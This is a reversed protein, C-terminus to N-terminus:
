ISNSLGTGWRGTISRRRRGLSLRLVTVHSRRVKEALNAVYRRLSAVSVALVREDTLRQHITAV